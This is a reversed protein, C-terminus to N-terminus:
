APPRDGRVVDLVAAFDLDAMGRAEAAGLTREDSAASPLELGHRRALALALRLDKRLHKISFQPSWDAALWKPKKLDVLKSRAVNFELADFWAEPAIGARTALTLSEAMAQNIGAILLNFSLKIATASGVGGTALIAKSLNALVPAVAALSGDDDGVFFVTERKEAAPKSGTFPMDLFRAGRARVAAAAARTDDVGITSHQAVTMGSALAPAIREIVAAVAAPDAVVIMVLEAGRVAAAIDATWGPADPKPTRNWTRLDHGHAALNRAWTGGIIGLGIVSVRM